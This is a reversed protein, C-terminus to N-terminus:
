TCWIQYIESVGIPIQLVKNEFVAKYIASYVGLSILIKGEEIRLM